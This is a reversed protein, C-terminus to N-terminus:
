SIIKTIKKYTSDHAIRAWEDMENTRLQIEAKYPIVFKGLNMYEKLVIHYSMYGSKKPHNIYDKELIINFKKEEKICNVIDYVEEVNDCVIRIGVIDNVNEIMGNLTLDYGRYKMKEILSPYTKIRSEIKNVEYIKNNKEIIDKVENLIQRRTFEASYCIRKYINYNIDINFKMKNM